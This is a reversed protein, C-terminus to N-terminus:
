TKGLKVQDGLRDLISILVYCKLIHPIIQSGFVVVFLPIQATKLGYRIIKGIEVFFFYFSVTFLVFDFVFNLMIICGFSNSYKEKLNCVGELMQVVRNVRDYDIPKCKTEHLVVHSFHKCIVVYRMVLFDACHKLHVVILAFSVLFFNLCFELVYDFWTYVTKPVVCTSFVVLCIIYLCVLVLHFRCKKRFTQEAQGSHGAVCNFQIYEDILAFSNLFDCHVSQTILLTYSTALYIAAALLSQMFSAISLLGDFIYNSYVIINFLHTIVVLITFM